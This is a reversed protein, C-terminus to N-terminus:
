FPFVYEFTERIGADRVLKVREHNLLKLRGNKDFQDPTFFRQGAPLGAKPQCGFYVGTERITEGIADDFGLVMRVHVWKTPQASAKYNGQPTEVDGAPDPVVFQVQTALRRGIEDTLRASNTPEPEAAADWAPRGRGVAVYIPMSLLMEAEGIRGDDQLTAM